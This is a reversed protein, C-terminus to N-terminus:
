RLSLVLVLALLLFAGICSLVVIQFRAESLEEALRRESETLPAM